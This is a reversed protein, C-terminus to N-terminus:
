SLCLTYHLSYSPHSYYKIICMCVCLFSTYQHHNLNGAGERERGQAFARGPGQQGETVVSERERTYQPRIIPRFYRPRFLAQKNGGGATRHQAPSHPAAHHQATSRRATGHHATIRPSARHHAATSSSSSFGSNPRIISSPKHKMSVCVHM